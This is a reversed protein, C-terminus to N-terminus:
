QLQVTVVNTVCVVFGYPNFVVAQRQYTGSVGGPNWYGTLESHGVGFTGPYPEGGPPIDAAGDKSGYFVVTYPQGGPPPQPGPMPLSPPSIDIGYSFFQGIWIFSYFSQNVTLVCSDGPDGPQARADGAAFTAMM